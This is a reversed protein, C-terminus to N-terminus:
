NITFICCLRFQRLCFKKYNRIYDQPITTWAELLVILDKRQTNAAKENLERDVYLWPESSALGHSIMHTNKKDLYAQLANATYTTESDHHFFYTKLWILYKGFPISHHILLGTKWIWSFFYSCIINKELLSCTVFLRLICNLSNRQLTTQYTYVCCQNM